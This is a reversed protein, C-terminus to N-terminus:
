DSGLEKLVIDGSATHVVVKNGGDGVKGKLTNRNIKIIDIPLYASIDGSATQADLMFGGEIMRKFRLVVDGSSTSIRYDCPGDPSVLASIDGSSTSLEMSGRVNRAKLSGSVGNFTIDRVIDAVADGSATTISLEGSIRKVSVDGSATQVSVDGDIDMMEIDGSASSIKVPGRSNDITVDGSSAEARVANCDTIRLDGSATSIRVDERINSAAVDGSATLVRCKLGAPMTVTFNMSYRSSGGFLLHIIGDGVEGRKPYKAKIVLVDGDLATELRLMAAVEKAEDESKAKVRKLIRVSVSDASDAGVVRVDGRSNEIRVVRIGEAPFNKRVTEEFKYKAALVGSPMALAVGVAALLFLSFGAACCRYLRSGTSM